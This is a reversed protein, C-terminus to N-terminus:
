QWAVIDNEDTYPKELISDDLILVGEERQIKRVTAKVKRWLQM